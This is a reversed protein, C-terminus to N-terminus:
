PEQRDDREILEALLQNKTRAQNLGRHSAVTEADVWELEYGDPYFQKYKDRAPHNAEHIGMGYKARKANSAKIGYLVHGTAALAFYHGTDVGFVYIIPDSHERMLDAARRLGEHAPLDENAIFIIEHGDTAEAPVEGVFAGVFQGDELLVYNLGDVISSQFTYVTV